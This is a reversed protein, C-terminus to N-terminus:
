EGGKVQKLAEAIVGPCSANGPFSAAIALAILKTKKM